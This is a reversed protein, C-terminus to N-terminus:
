QNDAPSLRRPPCLPAASVLPRSCPPPRPQAQAPRPPRQARQCRGRLPPLPATMTTATADEEEGEKEEEEEEEEEEEDEAPRRLPWRRGGAGGPLARPVAGPPTPHSSSASAKGHSLPTPRGCGGCASKTGTFVPGERQGSSSPIRHGTKWGQM